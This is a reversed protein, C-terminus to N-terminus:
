TSAAAEFGYRGGRSSIPVGLKSLYRTFGNWTHENVLMGPHPEDFGSVMNILDRALDGAAYGFPMSQRHTKYFTAVMDAGVNFANVDNAVGPDYTWRSNSELETRLIYAVDPHKTKRVRGYKNILYDRGKYCEEFWSRIGCLPSDPKLDDVLPQTYPGFMFFEDLGVRVPPKKWYLVTYPSALLENYLTVADQIVKPEYEVLARRLASMATKYKKYKPNKKHTPLAPQSNWLDFIEDSAQILNKQPTNRQGAASGRTDLANAKSVPPIKNSLTTLYYIIDNRNQVTFPNETHPTSVSPEPAPGMHVSGTSLLIDAEENSILVPEPFSIYLMCIFEGNENRQQKAFLYKHQILERIGSGVADRGDPGADVLEQQNSLAEMQTRIFYHLAKAKWSLRKDTLATTDIAVHQGRGAAVFYKRETFDAM